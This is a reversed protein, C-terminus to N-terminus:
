RKKRLRREILLLITVGFVACVFVIAITGKNTSIFSKDLNNPDIVNTAFGTGSFEESMAGIANGTAVSNLQVNSKTFTKVGDTIEINYTGEPAILVWVKRGGVPINQTYLNEEGGITVKVDRTYPINGLNNIILKDGEIFFEVQSSESIFFSRTAEKGEYSAKVKWGTSSFNNNVLLTSQKNSNVSQEIRTRELDDSFVVSVTKDVPKGDEILLVTYSIQDGTSYSEKLGSIDIMYEASIFSVLLVLFIGALVAAAFVKKM